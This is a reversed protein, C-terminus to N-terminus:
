NGARAKDLQAAMDRDSLSGFMQVDKQVAGAQKSPSPKALRGHQRLSGGARLNASAQRGGLAALGKGPRYRSEMKGAAAEPEGSREQRAPLNSSTSMPQQYKTSDVTETVKTGRRRSNAQELFAESAGRGILQRRVSSNRRSSFDKMKVFKPLQSHYSAGHQSVAAPQLTGLHVVPRPMYSRAQISQSGVAHPQGDRLSTATAFKNVQDWQRASRRAGTLPRLLTSSSQQTQKGDLRESPENLLEGRLGAGQNTKVSDRLVGFTGGATARNRGLGLAQSSHAAGSLLGAESSSPGAGGAGRSAGAVQSGM